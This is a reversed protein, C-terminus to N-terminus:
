TSNLSGQNWLKFLLRPMTKRLINIKSRYSLKELKFDLTSSDRRLFLEWTRMSHAGAINLSPYRFKITFLIKKM